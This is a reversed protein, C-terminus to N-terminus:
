HDDALDYLVKSILYDRKRGGPMVKTGLDAPNEESRIHTTKSEGMAVSERIAHYCISNSKKRLTSEPRQTNYIVSMNDGYIYSPGSLPVGMMRLKYRLSRLHEMGVKMAVFEAGFVGTEVTAQKKSLWAIPAMNLFIFYGTRSRRTAKDDAHSSDVFLRLDVEKGRPEPANPPIAEKVDGYFNKWDCEHFTTEDIKPYTPDFIMRSNHKNKLYAFMHWLAELHGERPMALYSSLIGLETMIDVRGLELAWRLVGILSQYLTADDANLEPSIDIEAEYGSPFPAAARKKLSLGKKELLEEVNRVAEQIYKSPSMGWAKVGNPLTSERLKAGLYIDPTGISDKKFEFYKGIAELDSTPDHSISLIDDVYLCMYSYYHYGDSPRVMKKYWLDPDAKCSSYGLMEMCDALHNRFSAGASKLGYLSRVIIAKKGADAGWEPSLVTWIREEVPATLYANQIDGVKVELANLAALTLAIRVTERSVVSAYTLTAPAETTHGGAVFRAKRRFNEMKITFIFHCSIRQYAPPIEEDDELIKFAIKVAVLEKKIADQWLTNGNERDIAIAEELTNPVKLGFRYGDKAYRKNVAAIIRNRRKLTYPVWWAFAPEHDIGRSVAYEAVEIPYSEKLDALREWSTSGDKWSICLHWGQTTKKHHRRGNVYVFRDAYKVANGDTRHDSISDLLVQQKGDLDCQAWMNEAIANAAYESIEGDPFEVQYTRTDLIPNANLTGRLTGDAERKRGIVRGTVHSDGRPLLVEANIYQDGEEPTVKSDEDEVHDGQEGDDDGYREFTPTEIDNEALDQETMAEGLRAHVAKDFIERARKEDENALEDENLPRYTGRHVVQGNAKLIKATMATGVDIAPGLYRGLTMRSPPFSAAQDYFKCWEYWGLEAFPSIDPTQGSMLTEPVEGDNQFRDNSTNSQIYQELEICDDWLRKPCGSSAMKRGVGTKFEKIGTESFNSQPTGTETQHIHCDSQRCKRKFEGHVQERAGDCIIKAPVGDRSFLLSLTEHAQSKKKMPFARKWGNEAYYVQAYKNGRRSPTNTLLTDTYVVVPLRRYRLQRDNTRFRRSLQPHLVTRIGRHTTRKMTRKAAQIGIGWRKALVEPSLKSSTASSMAAIKKFIRPELQRGRDITAPELSSRIKSVMRNATLAIGFDDAPTEHQLGGRQAETSEFACIRQPRRPRREHVHGRHDLMNREREAFDQDHPDWDPSDYTLVHLDVGETAAEYQEKTPKFTPLYSTVGDLSLPIVLPEDDTRAITVAHREDTADVSLFKPREDVSVDNLRLQMPCLLNHELQPMYIGQNIVLVHTAGSSPDTYGLAGSVTKFTRAGDAKDYGTVSVPREFDHTILANKGLVCTDAHSDMETQIENGGGETAM